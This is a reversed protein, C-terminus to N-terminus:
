AAAPPPTPSGLFRQIMAALRDPTEWNPSHGAGEIVEVRGAPLLLGRRAHAVPLLRDREGWVVLTPQALSRLEADSLVERQGSWGAFARLTAAGTRAGAHRTARWLFTSLAAEHAQPLAGPGATLLRRVLWRTGRRSPLALVRGLLPITALRALPSLEVGLGAADLLVATHVRKPARQMLRLLLLGGFSTGVADCGDISLADLWRDIFEASQRGLPPRLPISPSFGFGPLDPALLRRGPLRPLMRYWNAGGGIGGHLLLLPPGEGVDLYHVRGDRLEVARPEYGLGELAFLREVAGLLQQLSSPGRRASM